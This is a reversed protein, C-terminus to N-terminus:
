PIHNHEQCQLLHLSFGKRKVLLSKQVNGNQYLHILMSWQIYVSQKNGQVPESSTQSSVLLSFILSKCEPLSCLRVCKKEEVSSFYFHSEGGSSQNPFLPFDSVEITLIFLM